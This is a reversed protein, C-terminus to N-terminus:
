FTWEGRWPELKRNWLNTAMTRRSGSQLGCVRHEVGPNFLILRNPIPEVFVDEEDDESKIQLLGGEPTETHGYLVAGYIPHAREGTRAWLEEDKDKHWGLPSEDPGTARNIWTEIGYAPTKTQEIYRKWIQNSIQNFLNNSHKGIEWFSTHGDSWIDPRSFLEWIPEPLFNDIIKV